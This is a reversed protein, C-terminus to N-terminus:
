TKYDKWTITASLAKGSPYQQYVQQQAPSSCHQEQAYHANEPIVTADTWSALLALNTSDLWLLFFCFTKDVEYSGCLDHKGLTINASNLNQLVHCFYCM